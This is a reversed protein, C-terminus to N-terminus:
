RHKKVMSVILLVIGVVFLVIGITAVSAILTTYSRGTANDLASDARFPGTPGFTMALFVAGVTGLIFLGVLLGLWKSLLGEEEGM